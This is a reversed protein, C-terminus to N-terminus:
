NLIKLSLSGTMPDMYLNKSKNLDVIHRTVKKSGQKTVSFVLSELGKLSIDNVTQVSKNTPEFSHIVREDYIHITKELDYVSEDAKRSLHVYRLVRDVGFQTEVVISLEYRDVVYFDVVQIDGTSGYITDREGTEESFLVVTNIRGFDSNYATTAYIEYQPNSDQAKLPGCTLALFLAIFFNVKM